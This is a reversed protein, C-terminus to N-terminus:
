TKSGNTLSQTLLRALRVGAQQLRLEVVQGQRRLYSNSIEQERRIEGEDLLMNDASCWCAGQQWVCYRTAPAITIQFSENAWEIVSDHQWAARQPDSLRAGLRTAIQRYDDGMSHKLIEGDWVGHFNAWEMDLDVNISNAGRDDRFSVHLPQHIDGVWHGLLKVALLKEADSSKPDRLVMVDQHIAAIVCSNALPCDDSTVAMASRPLNVYHDIPRIVEPKDAFLCSDAFNDFDSDLALLRDLEARAEPQLEQYAIECVVRHGTEGWGLVITPLLLILLSLRKVFVGTLDAVRGPVM